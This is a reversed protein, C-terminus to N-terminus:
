TQLAPPRLQNSGPLRPVANVNGFPAVGAFLQEPRGALERQWRIPLLLVAVAEITQQVHTPACPSKAMAESFNDQRMDCPPFGAPKPPRPSMAWMLGATESNSWSQEAAGIGRGGGLSDDRWTSTSLRRWRDSRQGLEQSLTVAVMATGTSAEANDTPASVACRRHKYVVTARGLLSGSEAAALAPSPSSRVGLCPPHKEHNEGTNANGFFALLCLM